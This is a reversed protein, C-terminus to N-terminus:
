DIVELRGYIRPSGGSVRRPGPSLESSGDAGDGDAGFKASVDDSRDLISACVLMMDELLPSLLSSCDKVM